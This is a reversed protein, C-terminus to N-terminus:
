KVMDNEENLEQKESEYLKELDKLKELMEPCKEQFILKIISYRLEFDNIASKRGQNRAVEIAQVPTM